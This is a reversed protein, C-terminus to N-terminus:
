TIVRDFEELCIIMLAISRLYQGTEISENPQHYDGGASVEGCIKKDPMSFGFAFANPLERAYTGGSMCYNETRYGGYANFADQLVRVEAAEKPYYSPPQNKCATVELGCEEALGTLRETLSSGDSRKGDREMIPYRYDLRYWIRGDRIGAMTVGGCIRDGKALPFLQRKNKEGSLWLPFDFPAYEALEPLKKLAKILKYLANDGEESAGVHVAKGKATVQLLKQEGTQTRCVAMDPLRGATGENDKLRAGAEGPITNESASGYLEKLMEPAKDRGTLEMTLIGSEGYCVPYGCDAVISIDPPRYNQRYYKVDPMGIEEACGMYLSYNHRKMLGLEKRAKLVYLLGVAASKNDQIGRGILYNGRRTLSFPPSEWGRGEPVVDLHAWLGIEKGSDKQKTQGDGKICGCYYEYNCSPFGERKGKALMCDLAERCGEGFPPKDGTSGAAPAAAINSVSAIDSRVPVAAISPIHAISPINVVDTLDAIIDERKASVWALIQTYLSKNM